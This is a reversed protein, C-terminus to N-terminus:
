SRPRAKPPTRPGQPAPKTKPTQVKTAAILDRGYVRVVGGIAFAPLKGAKIWRVVSMPTVRFIAAVEKLAYMRDPDIPGAASM